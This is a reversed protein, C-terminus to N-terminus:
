RSQGSEKQLAAKAQTFRDIWADLLGILDDREGDYVLKYAELRRRSKEQSQAPAKEAVLRDLESRLEAVKLGLEHTQIIKARVSEEDHTGEAEILGLVEGLAEYASVAMGGGPKNPTQKVESKAAPAQESLLNTAGSALGTVVAVIAALKMKFMSKLMGKTLAAAKASILGTVVAQGAAFLCAAKVTSDALSAPVSASASGQSVLVVLSGISLSVGRRSLRRALMARARWLRSSVTGVPWGLQNAVEKHALGELDRLVVPIRYKEPLLSLERDISEAVAGRLDDHMVVPESVVSVQGERMRRKARMARAKRATQYAVGYLWNGLKEPPIVESARRALVLFAAQFADEADHCDRLVRRCVAWVMPGHRFVIAEFVAGEQGEVFRGLLQGDSLGGLVRMNFLAGIERFATGAESNRAV